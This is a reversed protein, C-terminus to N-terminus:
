IDIGVIIGRGELKAVATAEGYADQFAPDNGMAQMARGYTEWDAYRQAVIFQGTFPRSYAQGLRMYEAGHGEVISKVKGAIRAVDSPSDSSWRSLVTISMDTEERHQGVGILQGFQITARIRRAGFFVGGALVPPALNGILAIALPERARFM